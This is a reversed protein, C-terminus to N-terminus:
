VSILAEQILLQIKNVITVSFGVIYRTMSLRNPKHLNSCNKLTIIQVVSGKLAVGNSNQFFKEKVIF